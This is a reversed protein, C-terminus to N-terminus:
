YLSYCYWYKQWQIRYWVKVYRSMIHLFISNLTSMLKDNKEIKARNMLLHLLLISIFIFNKCIYIYGVFKPISIVCVIEKGVISYIFYEYLANQIAIWLTLFYFFVIFHRTNSNERWLPHKLGFIEAPLRKLQFRKFHKEFVTFNSSFFVKWFICKTSVKRIKRRM